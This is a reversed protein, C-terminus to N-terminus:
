EGGDGEMIMEGLPSNPERKELVYHDGSDKLKWKDKDFTAAPTSDLDVVNQSKLAYLVALFRRKYGDPSLNGIRERENTVPNRVEYPTEYVTTGVQTKPNSEIQTIGASSEARDSDRNSM